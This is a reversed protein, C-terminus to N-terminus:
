SCMALASSSIGQAECVLCHSRKPLEGRGRYRQSHGCGLVLTPERSGARRIDVVDRLWVVRETPKTMAERTQGVARRGM